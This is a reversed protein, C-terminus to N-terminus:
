YNSSSKKSLDIDLGVSQLIKIFSNYEENLWKRLIPELCASVKINVISEGNEETIDQQEVNRYTGSFIDSSNDELFICLEWDDPRYNRFAEELYSKDKSVFILLNFTDRVEEGEDIKGNNNADHWDILEQILVMGSTGDKWLTFNGVQEEEASAFYIQKIENAGRKFPATSNGSEFRPPNFGFAM